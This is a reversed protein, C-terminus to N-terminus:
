NLIRFIMISILRLKFEKKSIQTLESVWVDTKAQVEIEFLTTEGDQMPSLKHWSM